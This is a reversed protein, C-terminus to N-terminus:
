NPVEVVKDLRRPGNIEGIGHHLVAGALDRAQPFVYTTVMVSGPAVQLFAGEFRGRGPPECFANFSVPESTDNRLAQEVILQDERWYATASLDIDRLGVELVQEFHLRNQFPERLHLEVDLTYRTALQRAPLSIHLPQELWEGPDLSFTLKRTELKWNEPATLLVEGSMVSDYPNKFRLVPAPESTHIQVFEPRVSYSAHLVVLPTQLSEILLPMPGVPVITRGDVMELPVPNGFPDFARPQDGLYLEVPPSEGDQWSWIALCSSASPSDFVLAVVEPRPHMAAIARTGTLYHFLTRVWIYDPTPQWSRGGGSTSLAFPAPVHLRDPDLAKTLLVRRARDAVQSRDITSGPAWDLRVWQDRNTNELLFGLARPFDAAPIVEPLWRSVLMERTGTPDGARRPLVLTPVTIFQRVENSVVNLKEADWDSRSTLELRETGLQWTSILGGFHALIPSAMQQWIRPSDLEVVTATGTNLDIGASQSLIVGVSEVRLEGLRRVLEGIETFYRQKEETNLAGIMPVGVQVAGAGLQGVAALAGEVEAHRWPGLDVGLDPQSRSHIPLDPLVAFRFHRLLIPDNGGRLRLLAVYLGPPLDPVPMRLQRIEDWDGAAMIMAPEDRARAAEEEDATGPVILPQAHVLVGEPTLLELEGRLQQPTANNVEILVEETRGPAVLGAPHSFRLRARPLRFIAIDDFWAYGHTDQRIIPDIASHPAVQWVHTKLIWLQVRMAYAELYDGPVDIAVRTWDSTEGVLQSVRESGAIREQFRDVLYTAIFARSHHLDRTRIYGEVLYDSQPVVTLDFHGYEYAVNGTQVRLRFSPAAEHGIEDDFRGDSYFPLGPGDLREWRMPLDEYNGLSREDFDFTKVRRYLDSEALSDPIRPVADQAAALGVGIAGLIATILSQRLM